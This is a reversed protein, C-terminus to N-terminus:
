EITMDVHVLAPKDDGQNSIVLFYNGAELQRYVKGGPIRGTSVFTPTSEGAKWKEVDEPRIVTCAVGSSLDVKWFRGVLRARRNLRIEYSVLDNPPIEIDSDVINGYTYAPAQTSIAAQVAPRHNVRYMQLAGVILIVVIITREWNWYM